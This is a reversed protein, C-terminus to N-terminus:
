DRSERFIRRLEDRIQQNNKLDYLVRNLVGQEYGAPDLQRDIAAILFDSVSKFVKRDVLEQIKEEREPGAKVSLTGKVM